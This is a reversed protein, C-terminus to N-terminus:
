WGSSAVCAVAFYDSLAFYILIIFIVLGKRRPLLDNYKM